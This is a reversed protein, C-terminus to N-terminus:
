VPLANKLKWLRPETGWTWGVRSPSSGSPAALHVFSLACAPLM